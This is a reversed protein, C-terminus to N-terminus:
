MVAVTENDLVQSAAEERLLSSTGVPSYGTSSVVAWKDLLYRNPM